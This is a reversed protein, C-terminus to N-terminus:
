KSSIWSAGPALSTGDPVNPTFCSGMVNRQREPEGRAYGSLVARDVPSRRNATGAEQEGSKLGWKTAGEQLGGRWGPRSCAHRERFPHDLRQALTKKGVRRGREGVNPCSSSVQASCHLLVPFSLVNRTCWTFLHQHSVHFQHATPIRDSRNMMPCATELWEDSGPPRQDLSPEPSPLQLPPLLTVFPHSGGPM